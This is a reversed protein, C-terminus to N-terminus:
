ARIMEWVCREGEAIVEPTLELHGEWSARVLGVFAGMVLVMLVMPPLPKIEERAQARRFVATVFAELQQQVARSKADLYSAHHHLELFALAGQSFVVGFGFTADAANQEFVDVQWGPFRRRILFSFLLGAPGAGLIALRM